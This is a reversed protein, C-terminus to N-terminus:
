DALLTSSHMRRGRTMDGAPRFTGTSSDYLEASTLIVPSGSLTFSQVGGAILVKGSPLLTAIHQSRATIMNGSRTFAGVSQAAAITASVSVGFVLLCLLRAQLSIKQAKTARQM